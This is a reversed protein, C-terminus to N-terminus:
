PFMDAIEKPNVIIIDFDIATFTGNDGGQQKGYLFLDVAIKLTQSDYV